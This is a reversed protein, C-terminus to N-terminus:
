PQGEACEDVWRGIRDALERAVAAEAAEAIVRVIPETNSARIHVWRDEWDLRLGDRRDASADPCAAAIRDWLGAVASSGPRDVRQRREQALPYQDKIM